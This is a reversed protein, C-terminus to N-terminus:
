LGAEPGATAGTGSRWVYVDDGRQAGIAGPPALEGARTLRLRDAAPPRAGAGHRAKPRSVWESAGTDRGGGIMSYKVPHRGNVATAFDNM